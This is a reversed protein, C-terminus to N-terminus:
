NTFRQNIYDNKSEISFTTLNLESSMENRLSVIISHLLYDIEKYYQDLQVLREDFSEFGITEKDSFTKTRCLEFLAEYQDTKRLLALIHEHALTINPQYKIVLFRSNENEIQYKELYDYIETRNKEILRQSQKIDDYISELTITENGKQSNYKAKVSEYTLMIYQRNMLLRQQLSMLVSIFRPINDIKLGIIKAQRDLERQGKFGYQAVKYAVFGGIGAGIISGIYSGWFGIWENNETTLWNVSHISAIIGVFIPCLVFLMSVSIILGKNKKISAGVSKILKARSDINDQYNELETKIFYEMEHIKNYDLIWKGKKTKVTRQTKMWDLKKDLCAIYDDLLKQVCSKKILYRRFRIIGLELEKKKLETYKEDYAKQDISDIFVKSASDYTKVNYTNSITHLDTALSQITTRM